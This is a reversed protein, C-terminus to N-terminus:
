STPTAPCAPSSMKGLGVIANCVFDKGVKWKGDEYVLGVVPAQSPDVAKGNITMDVTAQAQDGGLPTVSVINAKINNQSYLKQLKNALDPDADMGQLYTVKESFPTSPDLEKQLESNLTAATPVPAAAVATTTTVAHTTTSTGSDDSCATMTLASAIALGAVVLRGTNRLNLQDDKANM